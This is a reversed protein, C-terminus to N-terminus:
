FNLVQMLICVRQTEVLLVPIFIAKVIFAFVLARLRQLIKLRFLFTFRFIFHTNSSFTQM